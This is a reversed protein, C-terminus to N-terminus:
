ILKIKRKNKFMLEDLSKIANKGRLSLSFNFNSLRWDLVIMRIMGIIITLLDQTDVNVIENNLKGEEIITNLLNKRKQIIFLLRKRLIDSKTL